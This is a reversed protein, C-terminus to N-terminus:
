HQDLKDHRIDAIACQYKIVETIIGMAKCCPHTLVTHIYLSSFAIYDVAPASAIQHGFGTRHM